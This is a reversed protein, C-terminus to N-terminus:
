RALLSSACESCREGASATIRCLQLCLQVSPASPPCRRRARREPQRPPHPVPQAGTLQVPATSPWAAPWTPRSVRARTSFRASRAALFPFLCPRQWSSGRCPSGVGAGDSSSPWPVRRRLRTRRVSSHATATPQGARSPRRGPQAPTTIATTSPQDTTRGAAGSPADIGHKPQQEGRRDDWRPQLSSPARMADGCSKRGPLVM